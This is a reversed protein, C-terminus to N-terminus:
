TIEMTAKGHMHSAKRLIAGKAIQQATVREARSGKRATTHSTYCSIEEQNITAILAQRQLNATLPIAQAVLQYLAYDMGVSKCMWAFNGDRVSFPLGLVISHRGCLAEPM